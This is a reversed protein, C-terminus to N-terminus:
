ATKTGKRKMMDAIFVALMVAVFVGVLALMTIIETPPSDDDDDDPAHSTTTTITTCEQDVQQYGDDCDCVFSGDTDSCNGHVGCPVPDTECEDINSCTVGDGWYGVNCDITQANPTGALTMNDPLTENGIAELTGNLGSSNTEITVNVTGTTRRRSPAGILEVLIRDTPLLRYTARVAAAIRTVNFETRNLITLELLVIVRGPVDSVCSYSGNTNSCTSRNNCAHTERTCEDIDNCWVASALEFGEACACGFSGPLDVCEASSHCNHLELSCEDVSECATGNGTWGSNCHCFFSGVAEVCTANAACDHTDGACESLSVCAVGSGDFGRNCACTFSGVTNACTANVHCNGTGLECENRDACTLGNGTFGANCACLFSSAVNTCTAAAACSHSGALCEDLDICFVGSGGYGANCMCTFSGVTDTCSAFDDCNDAGLACENV